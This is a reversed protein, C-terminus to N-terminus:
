KEEEGAKKYEWELLADAENLLGKAHYVFCGVYHLPPHLNCYPCRDESEMTNTYRGLTMRLENLFLRRYTSGM